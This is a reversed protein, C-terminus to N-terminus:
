YPISTYFSPFKPSKYCHILDKECSFAFESQTVFLKIEDQFMGPFGYYESRQQTCINTPSKSTNYRSIDKFFLVVFGVSLSSTHTHLISATYFIYHQPSELSFRFPPILTDPITLFDINVKLSKTMSPQNYAISHISSHVWFKCVFSNTM